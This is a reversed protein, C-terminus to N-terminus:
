AGAKKAAAIADLSEQFLRRREAFEAALRKDAADRRKRTAIAKRRYVDPRTLTNVPPVSEPLSPM